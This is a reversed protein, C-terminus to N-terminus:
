RRLNDELRKMNTIVITQKAFQVLGEKKLKQLERSVTERSMGAYTALDQESMKLEVILDNKEKKGFRKSLIVLSAVLKMTANGESFSEIHSWIGEIGIFIRRLLDYVIDPEQQLFKLVDDKLAKKVSVDTMAAYIHTNPVDAIAWSMPIFAYKKYLNLLIENGNEFIWYRKVIGETIYFVGSPLANADI